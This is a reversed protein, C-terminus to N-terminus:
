GVAEDAKAVASADPLAPLLWAPASLLERAMTLGQSRGTHVGSKKAALEDELRVLTGLRLIVMRLRLALVAQVGFPRLLLAGGEQAQEVADHSSLSERPNGHQYLIQKQEPEFLIDGARLSTANGIQVPYYCAAIEPETPYATGANMGTQLETRILDRAAEAGSQIDFLRTLEPSNLAYDLDAAVRHLTNKASDAERRASQLKKIDRNLEMAAQVSPLTFTSPAAECVDKFEKAFVLVRAERGHPHPQSAGKMTRVLSLMHSYALAVALYGAMLQNTEEARRDVIVEQIARWTHESHSLGLVRIIQEVAADDEPTPKTSANELTPLPATM